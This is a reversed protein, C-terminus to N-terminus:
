LLKRSNDSINSDLNKLEEIFKMLELVKKMDSPKNMIIVPNGNTLVKTKGSLGNLEVVIDDIQSVSITQINTFGCAFYAIKEKLHITVGPMGAFGLMFSKKNPDGKFIKSLIGM